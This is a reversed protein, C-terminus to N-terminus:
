SIVMVDSEGRTEINLGEPEPKEGSISSATSVKKPKM